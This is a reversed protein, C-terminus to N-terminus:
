LEAKAMECIESGLDIQRVYVSLFMDEELYKKLDSSVGINDAIYVTEVFKSEYKSDKYFSNIAGQILSYRQYDDNFGESDSDLLSPVGKVVEEEIEYIDEEESFEDIEEVTDLDEIDGFDDLSDLDDDVDLNDLNVSDGLDLDFEEDDLASNLLIDEESDKDNEMDLQRAFLLESNDFVCLSLFNDEILVYMSLSTDIKDKFFLSLIAFPSFIFDVGIDKYNNEIQNLDYKSSYYAWKNSVCVYRSTDIDHFKKMKDKLCSGIAGQSPSNDLISMYYFPSEEIYSKIFNYMLDNITRTDFLKEASYSTGNKNCVEIYVSTKTSSIIINVFIKTYIAELIKNIM